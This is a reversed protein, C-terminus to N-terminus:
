IRIFANECDVTLTKGSEESASFQLLVVEYTIIIALFNFLLTRSLFFFNRGSLGFKGYVILDQFRQLEDNWAESPINRFIELPKTAQEQVKSAFLFTAAIRALLIILSIWFYIRSLINPLPRFNFLSLISNLKILNEVQKGGKRSVEYYQTTTFSHFIWRKFM